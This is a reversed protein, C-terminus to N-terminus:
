PTFSTVSTYRSLEAVVLHKLSTATGIIALNDSETGGSTFFIEKESVKLNKAIIEKAQRIYKESKGGSFAIWTYICPSNQDSSINCALMNNSYVIEGEQFTNGNIWGKGSIIYYLRYRGDIRDMVRDNPHHSCIGFAYLTTPADPMYYDTYYQDQFFPRDSISYMKESIHNRTKHRWHM